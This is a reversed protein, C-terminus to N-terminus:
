PYWTVDGIGQEYLKMADTIQVSQAPTLADLIRLVEEADAVSRVADPAAYPSRVDYDAFNRRTRLEHLLTAAREVLADGANNLRAYLYNHARDARPTRFHLATLLDRAVHFAAYYARSAASRWDAEDTSAAMRRAAPLFERGTM